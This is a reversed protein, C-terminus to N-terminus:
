GPDTLFDPFSKHFIWIPDEMNEPVLLLSHLTRLTNYIRSPTGCNGLLDSLTKISLPCFILAVAGVVSKLHSYFEQDTNCFAQELVQTYLLDVGSKGEHSTDQPLSIILALREDPPHHQSGVFKVVTSAYIFFGAAKKCLADIDQLSPWDEGFNCNSRNKIIDTLRAKLFSKIDSNM